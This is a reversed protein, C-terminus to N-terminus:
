LLAMGANGIKNLIDNTTYILAQNLLLQKISMIHSFEADLGKASIYDLERQGFSYNERMEMKPIYSNVLNFGNPMESIMSLINAVTDFETQKSFIVQHTKGKFVLPGFQTKLEGLTLKRGDHSYLQEDAENTEPIIRQYDKYCPKFEMSNEHGWTSRFTQVTRYSDVCHPCEQHTSITTNPKEIPLGCCRYTFEGRILIDELSDLKSKFDLYKQELSKTIDYDIKM